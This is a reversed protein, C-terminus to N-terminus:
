PSWGVAALDWRVVGGLYRAWHAPDNRYDLANAWFRAADGAVSRWAGWPGFGGPCTEINCGPDDCPHWDRKWLCCEDGALFREYPCM